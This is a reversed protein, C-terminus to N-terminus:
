YAIFSDSFSWEDICYTLGGSVLSGSTPDIEVMHVDHIRGSVRGGSISDITTLELTASDAMYARTCTGTMMDCGEMVYICTACSYPSTFSTVSYTGPSVPGGMSIMSQIAVMSCPTSSLTSTISGLVTWFEAFSTDATSATEGPSFTGLDTACLPDVGESDEDADVTDADVTDAVYTDALTDRPIPDAATDAYTDPHATDWGPDTRTDEVHTDIRVDYFYGDDVSACAALALALVPAMSTLHRRQM